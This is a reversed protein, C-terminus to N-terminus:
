GYFTELYADDHAVFMSSNVYWYYHLCIFCQVCMPEEPENQNCCVSCTWKDEKCKDRLRRGFVRRPRPHNGIPSANRNQM